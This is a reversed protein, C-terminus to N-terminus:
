DVLWRTCAEVELAQAVEHAARGAANADQIYVVALRRDYHMADYARFTNGVLSAYLYLFRRIRKDDHPIAKLDEYLGTIAHSQRRMHATVDKWAGPAGRRAAAVADPLPDAAREIEPVARRCTDTAKEVWADARDATPASASRPADGCSTLALALVAGFLQAGRM